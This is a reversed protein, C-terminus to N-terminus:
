DHHAFTLRLNGVKTSFLLAHAVVRQMLYTVHVRHTRVCQASRNQHLRWADLTDEMPVGSTAHWPSLIRRITQLWKLMLMDVLHCVHELVGRNCANRTAHWVYLTHELVNRDRAASTAHWLRCTTKQLSASCNTSLRIDFFIGLLMSSVCLIHSDPLLNVSM